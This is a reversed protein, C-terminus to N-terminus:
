IEMDDFADLLCRRPGKEVGESCVKEGQGQQQAFWSPERQHPPTSVAQQDGVPSEVSLSEGFLNIPAIDLGKNAQVEPHQLVEEASPRKSPDPHMMCCLVQYLHKSYGSGLQPIQGDRLNHWMGVEPLIIDAVVEYFSIGLSFVDSATSPEGGLVEKSLYKFDGEEFNETDTQKRLHGFDGILVRPRAGGGVFLNGTKIDNHLYGQDHIFALGKAADGLFRWIEKEAWQTTINGFEDSTRADVYQLFTGGHCLEMQVKIFGADEWAMYMPIIYECATSLKGWILTSEVYRTYSISHTSGFPEKNEKLACYQKTEKDQVISVVGFTGQGVLLVHRLNPKEGDSSAQRQRFLVRFEGCDLHQPSTARQVKKMSTFARRPTPPCIMRSPTMGVADFESRSRHLSGPPPVRRRRRLTGHREFASSDPTPTPKLISKVKKCIPTPRVPKANQDDRMRVPKGKLTGMDREWVCTGLM